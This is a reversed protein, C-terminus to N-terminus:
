AQKRALAEWGPIRANWNDIRRSEAELVNDHQQQQWHHRGLSFSCLLSGAHHKVMITADPLQHCSVGLLMLTSDPM